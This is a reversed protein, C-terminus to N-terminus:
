PVAIHHILSTCDNLSEKTLLEKQDLQIDDEKMSLHLRLTANSTCSAQSLTKDYNMSDLPLALEADNWEILLTKGERDFGKQLDCYPIDLTTRLNTSRLPALIISQDRANENDPDHLSPHFLGFGNDIFHAQTCTGQPSEIILPQFRSGSSHDTDHKSPESWVIKAIRYYPIPQVNDDFDDMTITSGEPGLTLPTQHARFASTGTLEWNSNYHQHLHYAGFTYFITDTIFSDQTCILDHVCTLYQSHLEFVRLVEYTTADLKTIENCTGESGLTNIYIHKGDMSYDFGFYFNTNLPVPQISGSVLDETSLDYFALQDHKNHAIMGIRGNRIKFSYLSDIFPLKILSGSFDNLFYTFKDNEDKGYEIAAAQKGDFAMFLRRNETFPYTPTEVLSGDLHIVYGHSHVYDDELEGVYLEDHAADYFYNDLHDTNTYSGLLQLNPYEETTCFSLNMFFTILLIVYLLKKTYKM